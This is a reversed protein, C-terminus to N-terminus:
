IYVCLFESYIFICVNTIHVYWIILLLIWLSLVSRTWNWTQGDGWVIVVDVVTWLEEKKTRNVKITARVQKKGHRERRSGKPEKVYRMKPQPVNGHCGQMLQAAARLGSRFAGQVTGFRTSDTYDSAFYIHPCVPNSVADWQTQSM